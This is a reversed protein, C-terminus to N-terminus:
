NKGRLKSIEAKTQTMLHELGALQKRLTIVRTETDTVTQLPVPTSPVPFEMQHIFRQSDCDPKRKIANYYRSKIAAAPRGPLCQAILKWNNGHIMQLQEIMRDEEVTWRSKKINPDLKCTWRKAVQGPTKNVFLRAIRPWDFEMETAAHRLVEDEEATFTHATFPSSPSSLSSALSRVETESNNTTVESDPSLEYEFSFVSDLTGLFYNPDM